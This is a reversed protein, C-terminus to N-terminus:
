IKPRRIAGDVQASHHISKVAVPSSSCPQVELTTAANYHQEAGRVEGFHECKGEDQTCRIWAVSDLAIHQLYETGKWDRPNKRSQGFLWSWYKQMSLLSCILSSKSFLWKSLWNRLIINKRTWIKANSAHHGACICQKQVLNDEHSMNWYIWDLPYEWSSSGQSLTLLPSSNNYIYESEFM